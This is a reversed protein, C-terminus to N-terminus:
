LVRLRHPGNCFHQVVFYGGIVNKGINLIKAHRVQAYREQMGDKPSVVHLIFPPILFTSSMYHVTKSPSSNQSFFLNQFMYHWKALPFLMHCLPQGTCTYTESGFCKLHPHVKHQQPTLKIHPYEMTWYQPGDQLVRFVAQLCPRVCFTLSWNQSPIM